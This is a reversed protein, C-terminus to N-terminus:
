RAGELYAGTRLAEICGLANGKAQKVLHAEGSFLSRQNAVSRWHASATLLLARQAGKTTARKAAWEYTYHSAFNDAPCSAYSM